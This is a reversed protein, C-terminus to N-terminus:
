NTKWRKLHPLSAVAMNVINQPIHQKEMETVVIKEMEPLTLVPTTFQGDQYCYKCYDSSKSGDKETGKIENSDLPMSCSQCFTQTSM